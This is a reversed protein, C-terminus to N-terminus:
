NLVKNVAALFTEANFPKILYAGINLTKATMKEDLRSSSSLIIFKANSDISRIRLVAELGDMQPMNIDMITLDPRFTKFKVVAMLGNEAFDVDADYDILHKRLINRIVISDDVVLLRKGALKNISSQTVTLQFVICEIELQLIIVFAKTDLLRKEKIPSNELLGPPSFKVRFGLKDWETITNGMITNIFEGLIDSAMNGMEDVPSLGMNTSISSAVVVAMEKDTFGLNFTGRFKKDMDQYPLIKAIAYIENPREDKRVTVKLVEIQTMEEFIKKCNNALISVYKEFM